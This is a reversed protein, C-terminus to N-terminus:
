LNPISITDGIILDIKKAMDANLEIVYKAPKENSYKQLLLDPKNKEVQATQISVVKNDSNIWIMDLPILTDKMWFPWIGEFPFVFIMGCKDCLSQRKGLGFSLQSASKAIEINYTQGKINLQTSPFTTNKDTKLFKFYVFLGLIILLIAIIMHKKLKM